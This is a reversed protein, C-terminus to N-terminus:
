KLRGRVYLSVHIAPVDFDRKAKGVVGELTDREGAEM